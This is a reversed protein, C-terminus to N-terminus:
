PKRSRRVAADAAEVAHRLDALVSGAASKLARLAGDADSVAAELGKRAALWANEAANLQAYARDRVDMAALDAKVGIEEVTSKVRPVVADSAAAKRAPAKRAPAKKAPTSKKAPTKAATPM